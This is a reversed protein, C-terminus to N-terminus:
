VGLTPVDAEVGSYSNRAINVKVLWPESKLAADRAKEPVPILALRAKSSAEELMRSPVAMTLFVADLEGSVLLDLAQRSELTRVETFDEDKLGSSSLILRANELTGSGKQGISIKRGKLESLQSIKSQ